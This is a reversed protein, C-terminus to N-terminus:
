HIVLFVVMLARGIGFGGAVERCERDAPPDEVRRPWPSGIVIEKAVKLVVGEGSSEVEITDGHRARRPPPTRPPSGSCPPAAVNSVDCVRPRLLRLKGQVACMAFACSDIGPMMVAM